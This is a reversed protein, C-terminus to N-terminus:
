RCSRPQVTQFCGHREPQIWCAGTSVQPIAGLTTHARKLGRAARCGLWIKSFIIEITDTSPHLNTEMKKQPHHSVGTDPDAALHSREGRHKITDLLALAAATVIPLTLQSLCQLSQANRSCSIRSPSSITFRKLSSSCIFIHLYAKSLFYPSCFVEYLFFMM